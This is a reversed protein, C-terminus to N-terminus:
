AAEAAPVPGPAMTVGGQNSGITTVRCVPASEVDALWIVLARHMCRGHSRHGQCECITRTVGYRDNGRSNSVMVGGNAAPRTRLQPGKGRTAFAELQDGDVFGPADILVGETMVLAELHAAEVAWGEVTLAWYEVIADHDSGVVAPVDDSVNTVGHSTHIESVTGDIRVRAGTHTTITSVPAQWVLERGSRVYVGSGKRVQVEM